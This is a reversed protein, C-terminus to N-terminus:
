YKLVVTQKKVTVASRLWCEWHEVCGSEACNVRPACRFELLLVDFLDMIIVSFVSCM